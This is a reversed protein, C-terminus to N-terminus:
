VMGQDEKRGQRKQLVHFLFFWCPLLWTREKGFRGPMPTKPIPGTWICPHALALPGGVVCWGWMLCGRVPPIKWPTTHSNGASLFLAFHAGGTPKCPLTWWQNQPPPADIGPDSLPSTPDELVEGSHLGKWFFSWPPLPCFPIEGWFVDQIWALFFLVFILKKPGSVARHPPPRGSSPTTASFKTGARSLKDEKPKSSLFRPHGPFKSSKKDRSFGLIEPFSRFM